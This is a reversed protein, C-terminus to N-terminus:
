TPIFRFSPIKTPPKLVLDICAQDIAVPDDSVVIGIDPAVAPRNVHWCDCDPSVNVIFNVFIARKDKLVAKAYEVTKKSLLEASSDWSPEVAEYNCVAICQGCGICVNYDIRAIKSVRIAGTPVSGKVRGALSVNTKSSRRSPTQINSSSARDPHV